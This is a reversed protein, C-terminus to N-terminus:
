LQQNHNKLIKKAELIARDVKADHDSDIVSSEAINVSLPFYGNRTIEIEIRTNLTPYGICNELNVEIKNLDYANPQLWIRYGKNGLDDSLATFDKIKSIFTTKFKDKLDTKLEAYKYLHLILAVIGITAIVMLAIYWLMGIKEPLTESFDGRLRGGTKPLFGLPIVAGFFAFVVAGIFFKIATAEIQKLRMSIKLNDQDSTKTRPM